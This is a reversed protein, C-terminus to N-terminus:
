RHHFGHPEEGREPQRRVEGSKPQSEVTHSVVEVLRDLMGALDLLDRLFPDLDSIQVRGGARAAQLGVEAIREVTDLRPRGTGEIVCDAIVDGTPGTAVLRCWKEVQPM